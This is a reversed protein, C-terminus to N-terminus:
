KPQCSPNDVPTIDTAEALMAKLEQYRDRISTSDYGIIVNAQNREAREKDYLLGVSGILQFASAKKLREADVQQLLKVQMAALIDARHDKYSQLRKPKIGHRELAKYVTSPKIDLMGAIETPAATNALALINPTHKPGTKKAAMDKGNGTTIM